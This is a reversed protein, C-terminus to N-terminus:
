RFTRIIQEVESAKHKQGASLFLKQAQIFCQLALSKRNLNEYILGLNGIWNGINATNKQSFAMILAQQTYEFAQAYKEQRFYLLGLEGRIQGIGHAYGIEQYLKLANLYRELAL